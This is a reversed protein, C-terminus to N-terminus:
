GKNLVLGVLWTFPNVESLFKAVVSEELAAKLGELSPVVSLVSLLLLVLWVILLGKILCLILGLIRDIIKLPSKRIIFALLKEVLFFVLKAVAGIVLYSIAVFIYKTIIGGAIEAFNVTEIEGLQEVAKTIANSIFSPLNQQNIFEALESIPLDINWSEGFLNKVSEALSTGISSKMLLNAVDDCFFYAVVLAAITSLLGVLQKIFGKCLGVIAFVLLAVVLAIDIVTSFQMALLYM